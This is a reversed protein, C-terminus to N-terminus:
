SGLIFNVFTSKGAGSDGVVLYVPFTTKKSASGKSEEVMKFSRSSKKIKNIYLYRKIIYKM